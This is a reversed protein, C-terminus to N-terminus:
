SICYKLTGIFCSKEEIDFPQTNKKFQANIQSAAFLIFHLALM